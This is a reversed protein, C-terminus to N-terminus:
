NMYEAKVINKKRLVCHSREVKGQSQPHYLSIQIIKLRLSEMLKQVAGKFEKGQDLQIVKLQGHEIYIDELHKAIETSHKSKLPRLWLYRSFVDLITLIYRYTAQGHKIRWKGMDLLDIQHRDQVAKAKISKPIPKNAFTAKPLQYHRSEDLTDQVSAHSIGSYEERLHINVKRAGSGKTYDVARNVVASITSKRAVLKGAFTITLGDESLAGCDFMLLM